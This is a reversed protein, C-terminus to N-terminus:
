SLPITRTCAPIMTISVYLSINQFICYVFPLSVSTGDHLVSGSFSTLVFYFMCVLVLLSERTHSSITPLSEFCHPSTLADYNRVDLLRSPSRISFFLIALYSYFSYVHSFVCVWIPTM